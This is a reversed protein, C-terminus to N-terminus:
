VATRYADASWICYFLPGRIPVCSSCPMGLADIINLGGIIPTAASRTAIRSCRHESWRRASKIIRRSGDGMAAARSVNM